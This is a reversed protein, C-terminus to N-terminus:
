SRIRLPGRLYPLLLQPQERIGESVGQALPGRISHRGRCPRSIMRRGRSKGAEKTLADALGSMSAESLDGVLKLLADSYLIQLGAVKELCDEVDSDAPIPDIAIRPVGYYDKLIKTNM